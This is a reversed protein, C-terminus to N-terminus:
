DINLAKLVVEVRRLLKDKFKRMSTDKTSNDLAKSYDSPKHNLKANECAKYHYSAGDDPSVRIPKFGTGHILCKHSSMKLCGNINVISKVKGAIIYKHNKILRLNSTRNDNSVMYFVKPKFIIGSIQTVNYKLDIGDFFQILTHFHRSVIIEDPDINILKRYSYINWYMCDNVGIARPQIYNDWDVPGLSVFDFYGIDYYYYLMEHMDEALSHLYVTIHEVSLIRNREVWEVFMEVDLPRYNHEYPVYISKTCM